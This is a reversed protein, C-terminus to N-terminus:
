NPIMFSPAYGKRTGLDEYLQTDPMRDWRHGLLLALGCPMALFLHVKKSNYKKTLIRLLDRIKLSCGRAQSATKISLNSPGNKPTIMVFRGISHKSKLFANVDSFIDASIAVAIAIENKGSIKKDYTTRIPYDDTEGESEWTQGNWMPTVEFSATKSFETGVTFWTPLRMYGRVLIKKYGLGRLKHSARRIAPRLKKNWNQSNILNRRTRPDTGEFLAGWDLVVDASEPMFDRDIAQILLSGLPTGAKLDM